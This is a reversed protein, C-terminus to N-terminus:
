LAGMDKQGVVRIKNAKLVEIATDPNDFRFVLLARTSARELFGYMYEVNINHKALVKLVEALGGPKDPVEVAVIETLNAVFGKAKLITTAEQPKDVVLRLVGFNDSEAVTLARLNIKNEGLLSCVDLLRGKKNELFISIQILKM